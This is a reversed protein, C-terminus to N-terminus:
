PQSYHTPKSSASQLNITEAVVYLPRKRTEDYTRWLYEGIIGMMIMQLGGLILVVIMLSTWGQVPQGFIIREIAIIVASIFGIMATTIGIASMIRVPLYSFALASDIFLKLKKSFTWKSKGLKRRVRTYPIISTSFGTWLIQTMLHSNKERMDILIDKVAKDFLVFDFGGRPITCIAFRLMFRWFIGAFIRDLLGDERNTREAIVIKYGSRWKHVMETILEPPDQLDAMIISLCDGSALDLGALLAMHAGFNRALRIVKIRSDRDAFQQLIPFSNDKSGDDIFIIEGDMDPMSKLVAQLAPVTEPLNTENFYVPVVISLKYM